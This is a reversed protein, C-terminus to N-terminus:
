VRLEGIGIRLLAQLPDQRYYVALQRYVDAFHNQLIEPACFCYESIVAFFEAPSTAAYPNISTRHHHEVASFRPLPAIASRLNKTGSLRLAPRNKTAQPSFSCPMAILRLTM